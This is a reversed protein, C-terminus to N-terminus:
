ASTTARSFEPQLNEKNRRHGNSLLRIITNGSVQGDVTMSRENRKVQTVQDLLQYVTEEDKSDNANANTCAM